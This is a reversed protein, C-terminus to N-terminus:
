SPPPRRPKPTTDPYVVAAAGGQGGGDSGEGRGRPGRAGAGKVLAELDWRLLRITQANEPPAFIELVKCLSPAVRLAEEPTITEANIGFREFAGNMMSRVFIPSLSGATSLAGELLRVIERAQEQPDPDDAM